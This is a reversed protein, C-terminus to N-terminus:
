NEVGDNLGFSLLFFNAAFMDRGDDIGDGNFQSCHWAHNMEAASLGNAPM